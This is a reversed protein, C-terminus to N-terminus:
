LNLTEEPEPITGSCELDPVNIRVAASLNKNSAFTLSSSNYNAAIALKKHL